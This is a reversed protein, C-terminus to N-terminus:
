GQLFAFSEKMAKRQGEAVGRAITQPGLGEWVRWHWYKSQPSQQVLEARRGLLAYLHYGHSKIIISPRM